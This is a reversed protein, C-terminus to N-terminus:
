GNVINAGANICLANWNVIIGNRDIRIRASRFTRKLPMGYTLYYLNESGISWLAQMSETSYLLHGQIGFRRSLGSVETRWRTWFSSLFYRLSSCCGLEEARRSTRSQPMGYALYFLNESGGTLMINYLNLM